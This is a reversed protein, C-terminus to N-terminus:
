VHYGEKNMTEVLTKSPRFRAKNVAPLRLKQGTKPNQGDRERMTSMAFAAFGRINVIVGDAIHHTLLLFFHHVARWAEDEGRGIRQEVAKKLQRKNM